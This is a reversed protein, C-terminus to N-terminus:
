VLFTQSVPKMDLVRQIMLYISSWRTDVDRLLQLCPLVIIDGGANRFVGGTNGDIITATFDERRQGSARCNAVLKRCRAVPDEALAKAWAPNNDTANDDETYWTPDIKGDKSKEPLKTLIALGAKTAVNM